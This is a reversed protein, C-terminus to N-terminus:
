KGSSGVKGTGRKSPIAKLQDYPIEKVNAKPVPILILQAIAKTTPYVVEVSNEQYRQPTKTIVLPCDNENTIAIFIEGRYGSDVVGARIGMGKVGTSGREKVILAFDDTVSSAVGTPVLKTEHPAFFIEDGDFCAYIDYGANEDVKSPIIANDKVKAFLITPRKPVRIIKQQRERESSRKNKDIEWLNLKLISDKQDGRLIKVAAEYVRDEPKVNLEVIEALVGETKVWVTEGVKYYRKKREM